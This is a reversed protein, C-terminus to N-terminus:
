FLNFFSFDIIVPQKLHNLLFKGSFAAQNKLFRSLSDFFTRFPDNFAPTTSNTSVLSKFDRAQRRAHRNSDPRRCWINGRQYIGGEGSQKEM